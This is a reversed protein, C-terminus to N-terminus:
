KKIKGFVYCNKNNENPIVEIDLDPYTDQYQKKISEVSNTEEDTFLKTEKKFNTTILHEIKLFNFDQSKMEKVLIDFKTEPINEM